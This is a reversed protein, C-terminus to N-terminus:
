SRDGRCTVESCGLSRSELLSLTSRLAGEGRGRDSAQTRQALPPSPEAAGAGPCALSPPAPRLAPGAAALGLRGARGPPATERSRGARAGRAAGSATSARVSGGAARVCARATQPPPAARRRRVAAKRRRGLHPTGPGVPRAPSRGPGSGCTRRWPTGRLEQCTVGPGRPGRVSSSPQLLPVPAGSARGGSAPGRPNLLRGCGGPASQPLNASPPIRPVPSCPSLANFPFSTSSTFFPRFSCCAPGSKRPVETLGPSFLFPVDASARNYLSSFNFFETQTM